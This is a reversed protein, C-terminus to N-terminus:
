YYLSEVFFSVNTRRQRETLLRRNSQPAECKLQFYIQTFSYLNVVNLHHWDPAAQRTGVYAFWIVWGLHTSKTSKMPATVFTPTFSTIFVFLQFSWYSTFISQTYQIKVLKFKIIFSFFNYHSIFVSLFVNKIYRLTSFSTKKEQLWDM